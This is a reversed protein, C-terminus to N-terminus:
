VGQEDHSDLLHSRDREDHETSTDGLHLSPPHAHGIRRGGLEGGLRELRQQITSVLRYAAEHAPKHLTRLIGAVNGLLYEGVAPADGSMTRPGEGKRRVLAGQAVPEKM